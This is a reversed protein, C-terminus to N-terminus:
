KIIDVLNKQSTYNTEKILMGNKYYRLYPIDYNNWVKEKHVLFENFYDVKDYILEYIDLDFGLELSYIWSNMSTWQPCWNQTMIVVVKNNSAIVEEPFEGNNIAFFAQTKTLEHKNIM